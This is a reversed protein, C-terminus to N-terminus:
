HQIRCVRMELVQALGCYVDAMDRLKDNALVLLSLSLNRFRISVQLFLVPPLTDVEQHEFLFFPNLKSHFHVSLKLLKLLFVKSQFLLVFRQLLNDCSETLLWRNYFFFHLDCQVPRFVILSDNLRREVKVIPVQEYLLQRCIPDRVLYAVKIMGRVKSLLGNWCSLVDFHPQLRAVMAWVDFSLHPLWVEDM